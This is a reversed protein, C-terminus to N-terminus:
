HNAFLPIGLDVLIDAGATTEQSTRASMARGVRGAIMNFANFAAGTEGATANTFRVHTVRGSTTAGTTTGTAAVLQDNVAIDATHDSGLLPLLVLAPGSFLGWFIHDDAVGTSPLYPDILVIGRNALTTSYGAVNHNMDYGATRDLQGFRKGLLTLGSTNRLLVAGIPKGSVRGPNKRDTKTDFYYVQGLKDNNILNGADDLGDLTEGLDMPPEAMVKYM